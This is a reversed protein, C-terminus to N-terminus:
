KIAIQQKLHACSIYFSSSKESNLDKSICFTPEFGESYHSFLYTVERIAITKKKIKQTLRLQNVQLLKNQQKIYFIM